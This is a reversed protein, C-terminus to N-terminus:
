PQFSNSVYPRLWDQIDQATVPDSNIEATGWAESDGCERPGPGWITGEAVLRGSNAEILRIPLKHQYRMIQSGDHYYCTEINDVTQDGLCAVIQLNEPNRPWWSFPLDSTWKENIGGESSAILVPSPSSRDSYVAAQDFEKGLCVEGAPRLARFDNYPVTLAAGLACSIMLAGFGAAFRISCTRKWRLIRPAALVGLVISFLTLGTNAALFARPLLAEDALLWYAGGYDIRIIGMILLYFGLVLLLCITRFGLSTGSQDCSLQFLRGRFVWVLILGLIAPLGVQLSTVSVVGWIAPTQLRSTFLFYIAWTAAYPILLILLNKQDVLDPYEAPKSHHQNPLIM